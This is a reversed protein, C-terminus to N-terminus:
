AEIFYLFGTFHISLRLSFRMTLWGPLPTTPSIFNNASFLPLTVATLPSTVM